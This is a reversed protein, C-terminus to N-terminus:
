HEPNNEGKRVKGALVEWRRGDQIFCSAGVGKLNNM